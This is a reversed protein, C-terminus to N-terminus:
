LRMFVPTPAIMCGSVCLEFLFYPSLDSADIKENLTLRPDDTKLGLDLLLIPPKHETDSGLYLELYKQPDVYFNILNLQSPRNGDDRVIEEVSPEASPWPM